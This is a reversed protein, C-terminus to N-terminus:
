DRFYLNPDPGAGYPPANLALCRSYYAVIGFLIFIASHSSRACRLGPKLSVEDNDGPVM